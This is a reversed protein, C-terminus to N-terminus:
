EVKEGMTEPHGQLMLGKVGGSADLVFEWSLDQHGFYFVTESAPILPESGGAGEPELHLQGQELTIHLRGMGSEYVGVYRALVTEPVVAVPRKAPLTYPEGHWLQIAARLIDTRHIADGPMLIVYTNAGDTERWLGVKAAEGDGFHGIMPRPDNTLFWGFGYRSSADGPLDPPTQAAQLLRPSVFDGEFFAEDFALLDQASAVVGGDGVWKLRRAGEEDEAEIHADEMGAPEFVRERVVDAYPKGAVSEIVSALAVYNANDYAFGTGPAFATGPRHEAILALVDANTVPKTTDAHANITTLFHLGATQNLLHRVTIGPYPWDSLYRNVPADLDLKGDEVLRLAATATIPKTVSALPLPTRVTLPSGEYAGLTKSYVVKGEKGILLVGTFLGDSHLATLAADLEAARSQAFLSANISPLVLAAAMLFLAGSGSFLNTRMFRKLTSNM